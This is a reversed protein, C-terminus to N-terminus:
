VRNEIDIPDEIILAEQEPPLVLVLKEKNEESTAEAKPEAKPEAKSQSETEPAPAPEKMGELEETPLPLPESINRNSKVSCSVLNLMKSSIYLFTNKLSEYVSTNNNEM